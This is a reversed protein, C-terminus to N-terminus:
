GDQTLRGRGQAILDDVSARVAELTSIWTRLCDRGRATITFRRRHPGHESAEIKCTCLGQKAMARLTRYVVPATPPHAAFAPMAALQRLVEYGHCSAGALVILIGAHVYRDCSDGQCPCSPRSAPM